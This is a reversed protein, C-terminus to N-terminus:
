AKLAAAAKMVILVTDRRWLRRFSNCCLQQIQAVLLALM